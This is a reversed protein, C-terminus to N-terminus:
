EGQAELEKIEKNLDLVAKIAIAIEEDLKVIKNKIKLKSLQLDDVAADMKKSRIKKEMILIESQM